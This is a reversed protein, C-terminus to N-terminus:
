DNGYAVERLYKGVKVLYVKKNMVGKRRNATIKLIAQNDEHPSRKVFFVNDAEQAVFSSDRLSDNDLEGEHKVKGMHAMLFFCVNFELAMRKLERMVHGIELSINHRSMDILFHLHDIFVADLGYKLQAEFIRQRLWHLSNGRLQMPMIFFPLPDFQALFQEAPVEFTFWLCHKKQKEFADTFTQALLTKGNKTPGSIVTLEGGFFGEIYFDLGPIQSQMSRIAVTQRQEHFHDLMDYSTVVRDDGAYKKLDDGQQIESFIEDGQVIAM